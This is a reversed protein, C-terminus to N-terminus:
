SSFLDHNYKQIPNGHSKELHTQLEAESQFSLKDIPCEPGRIGRHAMKLHTELAEPTGMDVQCHLCLHHASSHNVLEEVSAFSLDCVKCSQTQPQVIKM